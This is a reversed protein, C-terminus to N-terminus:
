WWWRQLQVTAKTTQDIAKKAAKQKKPTKSIEKNLNDIKKTTDKVGKAKVEIELSSKETAM